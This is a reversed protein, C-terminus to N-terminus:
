INEIVWVKRTTYEYVRYTQEDLEKVQDNFGLEDEADHRIKRLKYVDARLRRSDPLICFLDITEKQMLEKTRKSVENENPYGLYKEKQPLRQGNELIYRKELEMECFDCYIEKIETGCFGCTFM